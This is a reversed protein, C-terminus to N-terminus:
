LLVQDGDKALGPDPFGSQQARIECVHIGLFESRNKDEIWVQGEVIQELEDETIQSERYCRVIGKYQHVPELLGEILFRSLSAMHCEDDILSLSHGDLSEFLQPEEGGQFVRRCWGQLNHQNPLGLQMLFELLVSELVELLAKAYAQGDEREGSLFAQCIDMVAQRLHGLVIIREKGFSSESANYLVGFAYRSHQINEAGVGEDSPNRSLLLWNCRRQDFANDGLAPIRLTDRHPL